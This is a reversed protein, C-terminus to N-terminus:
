ATNRVLRFGYNGDSHLCPNNFLRFMIRCGNHHYNWSGGRLVRDEGYDTGIPDRVYSSIDENYWDWCWEWVNGSMDYIGLENSKMSGITYTGYDLSKNSKNNSTKEYVAIEDINESGSYTFNKSIQGGSATYEWEAETPLRYGNSRINITITLRLDDYMNENNLDDKTYDINYYPPLNEKKSKANCFEICDYWNVNEVPLNDGKFKSPNSRMVERWEKQTVEYKGIYFNSLTVNKGYYNSKTNKFTGGQVLIMNKPITQSFINITIFIIILIFILLKNM